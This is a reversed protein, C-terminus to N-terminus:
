APELVRYFLLTAELTGALGRAYGPIRGAQLYGLRRYLQEAGDGERTDLVLLTRGHSKALEEVERLLTRGIGQRRASALVLLESVLARHRANPQSALELQVAGVVVGDREALLLERHGHALAKEVEEWHREAEEPLLPALFSVSAGSAVADVLLAGLAKRQEAARRASCRQIQVTM